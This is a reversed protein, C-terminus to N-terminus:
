LGPADNEDQSQKAKSAKDMWAIAEEAAKIDESSIRYKDITAVLRNYRERSTDTGAQQQLSNLILQNMSLGKRAAQKKLLTKTRDNIGRITLQHNNM